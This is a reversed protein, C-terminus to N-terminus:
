DRSKDAAIDPVFGASDHTQGIGPEARRRAQSRRRKLNERLAAKLRAQRANDDKRAGASVKDSGSTM